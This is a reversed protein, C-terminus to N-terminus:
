QSNARVSAMMTSGLITPLHLKQQGFTAFRHAQGDKKITAALRTLKSLRKAKLTM